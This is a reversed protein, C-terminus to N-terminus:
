WKQKNISPDPDTGRVFPDPDPPGFFIRIRFVPILNTNRFSKLYGTTLFSLQQEPHDHHRVRVVVGAPQLRHLSVEGGGGLVDEVVDDVLEGKV